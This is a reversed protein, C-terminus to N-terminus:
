SSELEALLRYVQRAIIVVVMTGVSILLMGGLRRWLDTLTMVWAALSADIAIGTAFALKIWSLEETIRVTPRAM